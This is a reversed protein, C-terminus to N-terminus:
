NFFRNEEPVEESSEIRFRVTIERRNAVCLSRGNKIPHYLTDDM